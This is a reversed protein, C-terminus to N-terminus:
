CRCKIQKNDMNDSCILYSNSQRCLDERGIKDERGYVGDAGYSAEGFYTQWGEKRDVVKWLFGCGKECAWVM